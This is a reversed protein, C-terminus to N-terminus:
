LITCFKSFKKSRKQKKEAPKEVVAPEIVKVKKESSPKASGLIGAAGCKETFMAEAKKVDKELDYWWIAPLRVNAEDTIKQMDDGYGPYGLYYIDGVIRSEQVVSQARPRRIADYIEIATQIQQPGQVLGFLHSLLQADELGQGAGAAQSPSSAHAADGLMCIRGNYYTPTDPHNFLPWRM